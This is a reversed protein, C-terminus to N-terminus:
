IAKTQCGAAGLREAMASLDQKAADYLVNIRQNSANARLREL